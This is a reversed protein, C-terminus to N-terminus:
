EISIILKKIYVIQLNKFSGMTKNLEKLQDDNVPLEGSASKVLLKNLYYVLFTNKWKNHKLLSDILKKDITGKQLDNYFNYWNFEISFIDNVDKFYKTKKEIISKIKNITNYLIKDKVPRKLWKNDNITFELESLEKNLKELIM